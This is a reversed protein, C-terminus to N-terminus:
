NKGPPAVVLQADIRRSPMPADSGRVSKWLIENLEGDDAQDAEDLPMKLSLAAGYSKPTNREEISVRAPLDTFPALDPISQFLPWMPTAAADYQTMPPLGLLLEMTRVVSVASYMTHDVFQRRVYPSVVFVTTRHCDIHDPGNQADDELIFIATKKWFPSHSIDDLIKGVVLDNEAIMARPTQSGPRTGVTHDGPLSLVEFAPLSDEKAYADFERKWVAYRDLDSFSAIADAGLYTPSVHNELSAMAPRVKGPLAGRVRGFEGYSRYSLGKKACEDWIFGSSPYDNDDDHFDMRNKGGRKSNTSPWLKEVYESAIASDTWFHGTASIEANHYLNDILTFQRAIAHQNPTTEKGFIAYSAEGNGEPMDGLIQDYTRNEKIIYIVHQIPGSRGLAFPASTSAPATLFPSNSRVERTYRPLQLLATFPIVSVTGQLVRGVFGPNPDNAVTGVPWKSGNEYSQDGKGNAVLLRQTKGEGAVAVSTPFWGTPLFGLVSSRFPAAVDVVTVSNNNANAVFLTHGDASLALGDPMSGPLPTQSMSTDIEEITRQTATDIISVINRDGNTVFILNGDPSAIIDGPREHVRVRAIPQGNDANLISLSDEGWNSVYVAHRKPVLACAYPKRGTDGQFLVKRSVTDVALMSNALNGAVFLRSNEPNLVIGAPFTGPPLPIEGDPTLRLHDLHFVAIDDGSGTSAYVTKGDSAIALGMWSSVMPVRQIIRHNVLDILSLFQDGYGNSTTLALDTHPVAVVRLPLGGVSVQQGAPSIKWGNPLLVTNVSLLGPQIQTTVSPTQGPAYVVFTAAAALSLLHVRCLAFKPNPSRPRVETAALIHAGIEVADSIM